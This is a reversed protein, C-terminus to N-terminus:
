VKILPQIATTHKDHSDSAHKRRQNFYIRLFVGLFVLLIGLLGVPHVPHSYLLCSLLIALCQRVSMIIAFVVPGFAAITCFILLQGLASCLSLLLCDLVFARHEAAFRLPGALADQQALSAGTLVCSFLNVACMMQVSSVGYARFIASQWNSTFSDFLVYAILLCAGATTTSAATKKGGAVGGADLMFLLMGCSLVLATGYEYREYRTRSVLRGVLMVPIM